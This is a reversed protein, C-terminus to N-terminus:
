ATGRSDLQRALQVREDDGTTLQVPGEIMRAAQIQGASMTLRTTQRQGLDQHTEQRCEDSM